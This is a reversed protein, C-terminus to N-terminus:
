AARGRAFYGQAILADTESQMADAHRGVADVVSRLRAINHQREDLSLHQRLVYMGQSNRRAPYRPQLQGSFLQGQRSPAEDEEIRKRCIARAM